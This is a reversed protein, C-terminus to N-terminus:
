PKYKNTNLGLGDAFNLAKDNYEGTKQDEFTKDLYGFDIPQSKVSAADFAGGCKQSAYRDALSTKLSTREIPTQAPM